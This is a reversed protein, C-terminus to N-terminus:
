LTDIRRLRSAGVHAAGVEKLNAVKWGRSGGLARCFARERAGGSPPNFSSGLTVTPSDGPGVSTLRSSMAPYSLSPDTGFRPGDDVLTPSPDARHEGESVNREAAGRVKDGLHNAGRM